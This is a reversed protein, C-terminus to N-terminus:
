PVGEDAAAKSRLARPEWEMRGQFWDVVMGEAIAAATRRCLTADEPMEEIACGSASVEARSNLVRVIDAASFNNGWYAHGDPEAQRRAQAVDCFRRRNRRWCRRTGSPCLRAPISHDAAGEWECVSNM